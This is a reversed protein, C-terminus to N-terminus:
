PLAVWGIRLALLGRWAPPRLVEGAGEVLFPAALLARQVGADIGLRFRRGLAVSAGVGPGVSLALRWRTAPIAIDESSAREFGLVGDLSISVSLRGRTSALLRGALPITRLRAHGAAGVTESTQAPIALAAAVALPGALATRAELSAGLTSGFLAPGVSLLLRPLAEQRTQKVSVMQPEPPVLGRRQREVVIAVVGAAAACDRPDVTFSRALLLEGGDGRLEVRLAGPGGILSVAAGPAAGLRRLEDRVAEATPCSAAPPATVTADPPPSSRAVYDSAATNSFGALTGSVVLASSVALLVAV